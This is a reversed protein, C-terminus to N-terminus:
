KLFRTAAASLVFASVAVFAELQKEGRRLAASIFAHLVARANPENIAASSRYRSPVYPGLTQTVATLAACGCVMLRPQMGNVHLYM